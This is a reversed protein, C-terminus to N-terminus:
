RGETALSPRRPPVLWVRRRVVGNTMTKKQGLLKRLERSVCIWPQAAIGAERIADAYIRVMEDGTIWGLRGDPGQLWELLLEAHERPPAWRPDTEYRQQVPAAATPVPVARPVLASADSAEAAAPAATSQSM